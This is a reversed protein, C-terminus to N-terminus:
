PPIAVVVSGSCLLGSRDCGPLVGVLLLRVSRTDKLLDVPFRLEERTEGTKLPPDRGHFSYPSQHYVYPQQHLKEGSEGLVLPCLRRVTGRQQLAQMRLLELLSPL